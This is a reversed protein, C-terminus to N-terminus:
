LFYEWLQNTNSQVCPAVSIQSAVSSDLCQGLSKLNGYASFQGHYPRPTTGCGDWLMLPSGSATTGGGVQVCLNGYGLLGQGPFTFRQRVDTTSCTDFTLM